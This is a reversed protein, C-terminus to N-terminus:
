INTGTLTDLIGRLTRNIIGKYTIYTFLLYIPIFILITETPNETLDNLEYILGTKPITPNENRWNLNEPYEFVMYAIYFVPFILVPIIGSSIKRYTNYYIYTAFGMVALKSGGPILFKIINM